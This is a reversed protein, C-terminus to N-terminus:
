GAHLEIYLRIVPSSSIAPQVFSTQDRGKPYCRGNMNLRSAELSQRFCGTCSSVQSEKPQAFTKRSGSLSADHSMPQLVSAGEELSRGQSIGSSECVTVFPPREM